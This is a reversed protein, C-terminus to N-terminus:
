SSALPQLLDADNNRVSNVRTSVQFAVLDDPQYPRLLPLLTVGHKQKPELWRAYDNAELIVPMRAHIERMM